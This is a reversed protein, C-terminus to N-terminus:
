REITGIRRIKRQLQMIGYLLHRTDNRLSAIKELNNQQLKLQEYKSRLSDTLQQEGHETVNHEQKVLNDEITNIQEKNLSGTGADITVGIDKM